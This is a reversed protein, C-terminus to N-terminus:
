QKFIKKGNVIYMGKPKMASVRRGSLDYIVDVSEEDKVRLAENTMGDVIDQSCTYTVNMAPMSVYRTGQWDTEAIDLGESHYSYAPISDGYAVESQHVMKDGVYYNVKYINAKYRGRVVINEAPMTAPIQEWGVFTYGLRSPASTLATVKAGYTYRSSRFLQTGGNEGMVLMYKVVYSNISFLGTVTVNNAPMTTPLGKWGTFTYGTKTPILEPIPDGCAVTVKKYEQGDVMYTITYNKAKYTGYIKVDHGPMKAPVEDWGTFTYGAIERPSRTYPVISQGYKYTNTYFVYDQYGAGNLIYELTVTGISFTGSVTVNGAPMNAPLGSWGSFVYGEKVPNAIPSLASGYAVDFTMYTTGDVMYTLTYITPEYKATVTLNGAPMNAPLGEWGKFTYGEKEPHEIPTITAGCPVQQQQYLNGDVMYQLTYVIPTFEGTITVDNAPMTAPISSWGSFTYGDRTPGALPTIATGYTLTQTQFVVGDVVYTLKFSAITFSGTVTIDHAPMTAPLGSWGSFIYGEKSVSLPTIATGYAVAVVQYTAGDLQYTINYSNVTFSGTVTINQAPMTAPLSNWGSFTYGERTPTEPNITQGAKLQETKYVTGDIKYTITYSRNAVIENYEAETIATLESPSNLPVYLYSTNSPLYYTGEILNMFQTSQIFGLKGESTVGLMRMRDPNWATVASGSKGRRDYNCFLAGLMYNTPLAPESSEILDLRNGSATSSSCEILVPTLSPVVGTVESLVAYKLELDYKCVKYVKMGSSAPKFPFGAYLPYYYKGNVSFQPTIGFYSDDSSSVPHILWNRYPSSRNTGVVGNDIDRNTEEDDLYKTIGAETASVTYTGKFAGTTVSHLDVYRSVIKYIGVGQGQIDIQSGYRKIYLISSADSITREQGTFLQLAGFDGIDRKMDYSGSNDTLYLYRKTGYNQVRYFGDTTFQASINCVLVTLFGLLFFFRRMYIFTVM